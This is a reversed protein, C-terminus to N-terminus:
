PKSGFVQWHMELKQIGELLKFFGAPKSISAVRAIGWQKVQNQDEPTACSVIVPVQELGPLGRIRIVAEMAPKGNLRYNMLILETSASLGGSLLRLAEDADAVTKVLNAIRYKRLVREMQSADDYDGEILLIAPGSANM